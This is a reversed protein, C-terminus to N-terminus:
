PPRLFFLRISSPFVGAVFFAGSTGWNTAGSIGAVTDTGAEWSGVAAISVLGFENFDVKEIGLLKPWVLFNPSLLWGSSTL